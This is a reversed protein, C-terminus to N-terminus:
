SSFLSFVAESHIIVATLRQTHMM